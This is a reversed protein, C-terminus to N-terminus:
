NELFFFQQHLCGRRGSIKPWGAEKPTFDGIKFRYESTAGWGYCRAVFLEILVLLFDVVANVILGLHNNYTTGLGGLPPPAWFCLVAMKWTFDCKAQLFDAVFNRQAFVTLLLTTLCENAYSDTCFYNTPAVGEVQFKPAFQGRQLPIASKWGIKARLAGSTVALSFFDILVLLFDVVHEGILRLHVDYTGLGGNETHFRVESLSLRSCLKKIHFSDAIFNYPM